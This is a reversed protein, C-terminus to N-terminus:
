HPVVYVLEKSSTCEFLAYGADPTIDYFYTIPDSDADTTTVQLLPTSVAQNEAVNLTVGNVNTIVPLNNQDSFPLFQHYKM